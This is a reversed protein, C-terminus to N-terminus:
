SEESSEDDDYWLKFGPCECPFVKRTSEDECEGGCKRESDIMFATHDTEPHGCWCVLYM